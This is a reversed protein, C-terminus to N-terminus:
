NLNYNLLIMNRFVYFNGDKNKRVAISKVLGIGCCLYDEDYISEKDIKGEIEFYRRYVITRFYRNGIKIIKNTSVVEFHSYSDGRYTPYKYVLKAETEFPPQTEKSWIGDNRNTVLISNEYRFWNEKNIEIKSIIERVVISSDLPQNNGDYHIKLYEWKNGIELPLISDNQDSCITPNNKTSCSFIFLILPIILIINKNSLM